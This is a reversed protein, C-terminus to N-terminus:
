IQFGFFRTSGRALVTKTSGAFHILYVNIEDGAELDMVISGSVQVEDLGNSAIAEMPYLEDAIGLYLWADGAELQDIMVSVYFFYLGDEPVVFKDNGIDFNDQQDIEEVGWGIKTWTNDDINQDNAKIASFITTESM